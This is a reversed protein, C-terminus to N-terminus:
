FDKGQLWAWRSGSTFSVWDFSRTWMCTIYRASHALRTHVGEIGRVATLDDEQQRCTSTADADVQSSSISDDDIVAVPVWVVVQLHAHPGVTM